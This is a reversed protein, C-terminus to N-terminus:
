LFMSDVLQGVRDKNERFVTVLEQVIIGYMSWPTKPFKLLSYAQCDPLLNVVIQHYTVPKGGQVGFWDNQVTTAAEITGIDVEQVCQLTTSATLVEWRMCDKQGDQSCVAIEEDNGRRPSQFLIFENDWTTLDGADATAALFQSSTSEFSGAYETTLGFAVVTTHEAGSQHAAALAQGVGSIDAPGCDSLAHLGGAALDDLLSQSISPAESVDGLLESGLDFAGGTGRGGAWVAPRLCDNKLGLSRGGKTATKFGQAASSAAGVLAVPLASAESYATEFVEALPPSQASLYTSGQQGYYELFLGYCDEYACFPLPAAEGDSGIHASFKVPLFFPWRGQMSPDDAKLAYSVGAFGADNAAATGEYVPYFDLLGDPFDYAANPMAARMAGNGEGPSPLVAGWVGLKGKAWSNATGGLGQSKALGGTTAYMLEVYSKWMPSDFGATEFLLVLVQEEPSLGQAVDGFLDTTPDVKSGSWANGKPRMSEACMFLQEMLDPSFGKWDLRKAMWGTNFLDGAGDPQQVMEGLLAVFDPSYQLEQAFWTGGSCSSLTGFDRFLAALQEDAAATSGLREEAASLLGALVGTFGAVSSLGGGAFAAV